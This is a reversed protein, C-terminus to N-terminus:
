RKPNKTAKVTSVLEVVIVIFVLLAGVVIVAEPYQAPIELVTASKKGIKNSYSVMEYGAWILLMTIAAAMFLTIIRLWHRIRPTLKGIVFEIRIHGKTIWTHALGLFTIGVLMYAGIEDAAMLSAQLVYRSFVEVMILAMLGFVLWGSFERSVSTIIDVVRKVM